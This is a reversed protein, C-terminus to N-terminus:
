NDQEDDTRISAQLLYEIIKDNIKETYFKKSALVANKITRARSSGHCILATGNIGLLLAGGYENYDYKKYIRAIVPKFRMALRPKETMLEHKIAKFLGDVLGETLKL